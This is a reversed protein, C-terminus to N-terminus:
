KDSFIEIYFTCLVKSGSSITWYTIHYGSTEPATMTITILVTSRPQVSQFLDIASPGTHMPKGEKFRVDVNQADWIVDGTNELTWSARFQTGAKIKSGDQPDQEVVKCRGEM